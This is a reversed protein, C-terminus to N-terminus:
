QKNIQHIAWYVFFLFAFPLLIIAFQTLPLQSSLDLGGIFGHVTPFLLFGLVVLILGVAFIYAGRM